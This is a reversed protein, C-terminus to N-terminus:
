RERLAGRLSPPVEGWEQLYEPGWPANGKAEGIVM